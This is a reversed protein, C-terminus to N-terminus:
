GKQPRWLGTGRAVDKSSKFEKIWGEITTRLQAESAPKVEKEEENPQNAKVVKIRM